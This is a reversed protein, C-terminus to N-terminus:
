KLLIAKKVKTYDPTQMKYFYVGSSVPQNNDDRGHWSYQYFGAPLVDEIITKVKQGRVNFIMLTVPADEKLSFALNTTPNFPNPYCGELSTKFPIIDDPSDTIEESNVPIDINDGTRATIEGL